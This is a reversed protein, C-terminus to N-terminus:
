RNGTVAEYVDMLANCHDAISIAHCNKSLAPLMDPNSAIYAIKEALASTDNSPVLWGNVGDHIQMEGGGSMTTLVPKGLALAEAINLGFAELYIAPSISVHFGKTTEFVNDPSIKGHWVIRRDSKYKQQLMSMYRQEHKNGAGGILHLEIASDNIKSFAELLVHIGKVYCIRGVFYFKVKGEIVDPFDPREKPLPIGHPIIRLKAPDLGNSVMAEGIRDCPAIMVNCNKVIDSFQKQKNQISLASTGVPTIFPIFPKNQLFSGIKLYTDQNLHKVFPYWYKLGTRINSLVCPLCNKHKIKDICIENSSNLLTGAPCLLGGHHATIVLPIQLKKTLHCVSYEASHAHIISPSIKNIAHELISTDSIELLRANRYQKEIIDKNNGTFSVIAIDMGMDIMTDVINKVYVQGGGYSSFFDGSAIHLIRM